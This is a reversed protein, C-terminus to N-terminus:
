QSTVKEFATMIQVPDHCEPPPLDEQITLDSDVFIVREPWVSYKQFLENNVDLLWTIKPVKHGVEKILRTVHELGEKRNDWTKIGLGM